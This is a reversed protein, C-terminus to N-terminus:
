PRIEYFANVAHDVDLRTFRNFGATQAMGEATSASLGLTGLGAGDPSSMASSMCSLVSIGYMLSAMPNKAANLAFTDHAKIDVLLWVGDDALSNRIARLMDAPHPRAHSCDCTTVFDVQHDTPLPNTRPDVFSANTLGSAVLRENARALAFQSIDYGVFTSQPFAKAMLLVAGGTGCGIDLVKGAQFPLSEQLLETWAQRITPDRLGHDPEDDFHAAAADWYDRTNFYHKEIGSM